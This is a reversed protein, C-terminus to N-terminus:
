NRQKRFDKRLRMGSKQPGDDPFCSLALYRSEVFFWKETRQIQACWGEGWLFLNSSEKLIIPCSLAKCTAPFWLQSFGKGLKVQLQREDLVENKLPKMKKRRWECTVSFFCLSYFFFFFLFFLNTLFNWIHANYITTRPIFTAKM